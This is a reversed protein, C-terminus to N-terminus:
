RCRTTGRLDDPDSPKKKEGLRSESLRRTTLFMLAMLWGCLQCFPGSLSLAILM